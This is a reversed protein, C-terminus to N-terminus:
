DVQSLAIMVDDKLSQGYAFVSEQLEKCNEMWYISNGIGDNLMLKHEPECRHVEEDEDMEEIVDMDQTTTVSEFIM